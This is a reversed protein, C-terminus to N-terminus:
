KDGELLNFPFPKTYTARCDRDVSGPAVPNLVSDIIKAKVARARELAAQGEDATAPNEARAKANLILAEQQALEAERGINAGECVQRLDDISDAQQSLAIVCAAFFAFFAALAVYLRVQGRTLTDASRM